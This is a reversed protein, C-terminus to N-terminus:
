FNQIILLFSFVLLAKIESINVTLPPASLGPHWLAMCAFVRLPNAQLVVAPLSYILPL